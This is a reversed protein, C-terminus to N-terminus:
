SAIAARADALAADYVAELQANVGRCGTIVDETWDLYEIQRELSWGHPPYAALDRVNAIKDGLKILKAKDTLESAHEVQLEKRRLKPLNKDDTVEAVMASVEDGFRATLDDFTTDTDEVTDHLVAAILTAEDEVDGEVSLIAAVDIPHNIYPIDDGGKRRQSQHKDAAFVLARWYNSTNM